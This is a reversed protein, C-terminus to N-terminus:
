FNKFVSVVGNAIFFTDSAQITAKRSSPDIEGLHGGGINLVVIM